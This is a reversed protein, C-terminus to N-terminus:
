HVKVESSPNPRVCNYKVFTWVTSEKSNGDNDDNTDEEKEDTDANDQGQEDKSEKKEEDKDSKSEGKLFTDEFYTVANKNLWLSRTIYSNSGVCM